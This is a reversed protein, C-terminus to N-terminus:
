VAWEAWITTHVLYYEHVWTNENFILGIIEALWYASCNHKWKWNWEIFYKSLNSIACFIFFLFIFLLFFIAVVVYFAIVFDSIWDAILNQVRIGTKRYNKKRPIKHRRTTLFHKKWRLKESWDDRVAFFLNPSTM